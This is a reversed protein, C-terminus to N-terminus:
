AFKLFQRRKRRIELRAAEVSGAACVEIEPWFLFGVQWHSKQRHTM